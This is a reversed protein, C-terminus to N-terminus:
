KSGETVVPCQLTYTNYVQLAATDITCVYAIKLETLLDKFQQLVNERGNPNCHTNLEHTTKGIRM